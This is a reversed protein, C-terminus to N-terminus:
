TTDEHTDTHQKPYKATVHESKQSQKELHDLRFSHRDIQKELDSNKEFKTELKEVRKVAEDLKNLATTLKITISLLAGLSTVILGILATVLWTPIFM